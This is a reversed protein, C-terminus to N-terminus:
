SLFAICRLETSVLNIALFPLSDTIEEKMRPSIKIPGSFFGAINILVHNFGKILKDSLIKDLYM